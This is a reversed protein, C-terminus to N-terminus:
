WAAKKAADANAEAFNSNTSVGEPGRDEGEVQLYAKPSKMFNANRTFPHEKNAGDIYRLGNADNIATWEGVSVDAPCFFYGGKMNKALELFTREQGEKINWQYQLFADIPRTTYDVPLLACVVNAWAAFNAQPTALATNITEQTVGTAKIAHIVVAMKQKMEAKYLAAYEPNDPGILNNKSDYLDGTVDYIRNNYERDGIKINIDVANGASGDKGANANYAIRTFNVSPNLGFVGGVKSKLTNDNDNVTGFISEQSM